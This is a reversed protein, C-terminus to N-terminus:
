RCARAGALRRRLQRDARDARHRGADPLLRRRRLRARRPHIRQLPRHRLRGPRLPGRRDRVVLLGAHRDSRGPRARLVPRAHRQAILTRRDVRIATRGSGSRRPIRQPGVALEGAGPGAISRWASRRAVGRALGLSQVIAGVVPFAIMFGISMVISYIAMAMDIRRVFWQGVMALSIVSLASQGLGRTLTVAIALAWFSRCTPWRRGRRRRAGRRRDHARRPHRASRHGPRHRDRRAVRDADGVFEAARLRCPRPRSRAILPETVLGLGQTRGPLTGVM